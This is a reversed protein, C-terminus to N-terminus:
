KIQPISAIAQRIAAKVQEDKEMALMHQLHSKGTQKGMAGLAAIAALRTSLDPHGIIGILANMAHEDAIQVLADIAAIRTEPSKNSLSPIVKQSNKSKIFSAFPSGAEHTM